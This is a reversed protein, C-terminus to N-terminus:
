LHHDTRSSLIQICFSIFDLIFMNLSLGLSQDKPFRLLELLFTVSNPGIRRIVINESEESCYSPIGVPDTKVLLNMEPSSFSENEDIKKDRKRNKHRTKRRM